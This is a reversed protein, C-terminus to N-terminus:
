WTQKRRGSNRGGGGGGRAYCLGGLQARVELRLFGGLAGQFLVQITGDRLQRVDPALEVVGLLAALAGPTLALAGRSGAQVLEPAVDRVEGLPQLAGLCRAGGVVFLLALQPLLKGALPLGHRRQAPLTSRQLRAHRGEAM